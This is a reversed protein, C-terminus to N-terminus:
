LLHVFSQVCKCIGAKCSKGSAFNVIVYIYTADPNSDLLGAGQVNATKVVVTDLMCTKISTCAEEKILLDAINGCKEVFDERQRIDNPKYSVQYCDLFASKVTMAFLISIFLTVDNKCVGTMTMTMMMTTTTM